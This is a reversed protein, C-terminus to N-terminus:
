RFQWADLHQRDGVWFFDDDAQGAREHVPEIALM